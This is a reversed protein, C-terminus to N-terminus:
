SWVIHGEGAGDGDFAKRDSAFEQTLFKLAVPRQHKMDEVGQVIGM